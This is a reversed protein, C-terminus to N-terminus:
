CPMGGKRLKTLPKGPHMAREHKHVASKVLAKDQKIDAKGGEAKGVVRSLQEARSGVFDKDSANYDRTPRISSAMGGDSMKHAYGGKRMGALPAMPAAVMPTQRPRAAMAAKMKQATRMEQANMTPTDKTKVSFAKSREVVPGKVKGGKRYNTAPTNAAKVNAIVGRKAGQMSAEQQRQTVSGGKSFPRSTPEDRVPDYGRKADEARVAERRAAVMRSYGEGVTRPPLAKMLNRLNRMEDATLPRSTPEDRVPDYARPKRIAGGDAKKMAPIKAGAKRAESLAIAIAQKPNTVEPGKKSGSHLKGSKFEGMVKSVKAMGTKGGKAYGGMSYHTKTSDKFGEM